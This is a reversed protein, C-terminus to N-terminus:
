RSPNDVPTEQQYQLHLHQFSVEDEKEFSEKAGYKGNQDIVVGSAELKGLSSISTNGQSGRM